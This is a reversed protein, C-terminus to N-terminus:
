GSVRAVGPILRIVSIFLSLTFTAFSVLLITFGVPLYESMQMAVASYRVHELVLVHVFYIVFSCNSLHRFATAWRPGIRIRSFLVFAAISSVLVNPSFYMFGTEIPAGARASQYWVIMVTIAVALAFIAVWISTSMPVRPRSVIVAGLLFYGGYGFLNEQQLLSLLSIPWYIPLSNVVLWLLFFYGLLAPSRLLGAFVPRLIPLILYIGVIMYAFWLHYMVPKVFVSEFQIQVGNYSLHMQYVVSWAILPVVVRLSRRAIQIVENAEQNRDTKRSLILAGSLMVFLPVSCRVLSDLFVSQVWSSLPIVGYQYFSIGCSHILVVGYIAVVRCLDLWGHRENQHVHARHISPADNRNM